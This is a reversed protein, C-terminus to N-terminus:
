NYEPVFAFFQPILDAVRDFQGVDNDRAIFKSFDNLFANFFAQLTTRLLASSKTTILICAVPFKDSRETILLAKALKLEVLAGKNMAENLITNIGQMMGSFLIDDFDRERHDFTHSFLSLGSNTDLIILKYIDIPLIFALKPEIVVSIIIINTAIASILWIAGSFVIDLYGSLYLIIAVPAILFTALLFVRPYVQLKKPTKKLLGILIQISRFVSFFVFLVIPVTLDYNELLYKTGDPLTMFTIIGVDFTARVALTSLIALIVITIPRISDNLILDLFCIIIIFGPLLLYDALIGLSASEWLTALARITTSIGNLLLVLSITMVHPYKNQRYRYVAIIFTTIWLAATVFLVWVATAYNVM